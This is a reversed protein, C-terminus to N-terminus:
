RTGKLLRAREPRENLWKAAAIRELEADARGEWKKKQTVGEQRTQRLELRACEKGEQAAETEAHEQARTELIIVVVHHTRM